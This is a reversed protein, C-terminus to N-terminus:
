QRANKSRSEVESPQISNGPTHNQDSKVEGIVAAPPVVVASLASRIGSTSENTSLSPKATPTNANMAEASFEPRFLLYYNPMTDSIASHVFVERCSKCSLVWSAM